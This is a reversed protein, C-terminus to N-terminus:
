NAPQVGLEALQRRIKIKWSSQAASQQGSGTEADFEKQLRNM